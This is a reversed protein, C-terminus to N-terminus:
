RTKEEPKGHEVAGGGATQETPTATQRAMAEFHREHVDHISGPGALYPTPSIWGDGRQPAPNFEPASTGAEQQEAMPGCATAALTGAALATKKIIDTM